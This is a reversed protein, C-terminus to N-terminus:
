ITIDHGPNGHAFGGCGACIKISPQNKRKPKVEEGELAKLASLDSKINTLREKAGVYFDYSDLDNLRIELWNIIANHLIILEEQKEIRKLLIETKNM